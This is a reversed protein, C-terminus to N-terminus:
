NSSGSEGLKYLGHYYKISKLDVLVLSTFVLSKTHITVQLQNEVVLETTRDRRIMCYLEDRFQTLRM